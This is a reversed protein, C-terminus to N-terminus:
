SSDETGGGGILISELKQADINIPSKNNKLENVFSIMERELENFAKEIAKLTSIYSAKHADYIGSSKISEDIWAISEEIDRMHIWFEHFCDDGRMLMLDWTDLDQSKAAIISHDDNSVIEMLFDVLSKISQKHSFLCYRILNLHRIFSPPYLSIMGKGTKDRKSARPVMDKQIYHKVTNWKILWKKKGLEALIEDKTIGGKYKEEIANLEDKSFFPSDKIDEEYQSTETLLLMMRRWYTGVKPLGEMKWTM